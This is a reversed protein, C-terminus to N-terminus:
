PHRRPGPAAAAPAPNGGPGVGRALSKQLFTRTRGKPFDDLSGFPTYGNRQYVRLARPSFTDIWAGHCGRAAAEIEALALLRGAEGRGRHPAALWLWQVYLWGWATYGSLGGQVTGVGDRLIVALPRRHAPGVEAENFATLGEAIAALAAPDPTETIEAALTM